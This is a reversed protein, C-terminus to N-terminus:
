WGALRLFIHLGVGWAMVVLVCPVLYPYTDALSAFFYKRTLVYCLHVPSLMMGAYGMSFALVLAAGEGLNPAAAVLGVVLPFAPGAFGIAVGTVLGALFPLFAIIIEVPIQSASLQRGAAPLLQSANLMGQFLMVGALTFLVSGTKATVLRSFLRHGGDHGSRRAILLLALILGVLMALLKATTPSAGPAIRAVPGPLLLTSLVIVLIPAFVRVLDRGSLPPADVADRLIALRRRLLFFWGAGISIATFPVQLLFFRSTSLNFISLTVIVVPYLPWWYELVHRFWYNVSAKWAAPVERDRLAEGVLPASFLAGGPMPVLGIIAPILVLGLARGNRGGLRRAAALIVQSNRESAMFYGFELILGINLILLWLEPAALAQFLDSGVTAVGRGAWLDIGLGGLLLALGLPLGCRDLLLILLFVALIRTVPSLSLLISALM